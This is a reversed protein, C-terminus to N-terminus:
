HLSPQKLREEEETAAAHAYYAEEFESPPIYGTSELRRTHNFWDVWELTAFEVEELGIWPGEHRIVETKYLGIVSEALANDAAVRRASGLVVVHGTHSRSARVLRPQRSEERQEDRAGNQVGVTVEAVLRAHSVWLCARRGFWRMWRVALLPVSPLSSCRGGSIRRVTTPEGTCLTRTSFGMFPFATRRLLSASAPPM